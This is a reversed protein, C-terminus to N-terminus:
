RWAAVVINDGRSPDYVANRFGAYFDVRRFGALWSHLYPLDFVHVLTSIGGHEDLRMEMSSRGVLRCSIGPQYMWWDRSDGHRNHYHRPHPAEVVFVGGPKLVRRAQAALCQRAAESQIHLVTAHLCIVLDFSADAFPLPRGADALVLGRGPNDLAALSLMHASGDLGVVQCGAQSLPKLMRGSGCGLDLVKGRGCVRALWSVQRRTTKPDYAFDLDYVPAVRDYFDLAKLRTTKLPGKGLATKERSTPSRLM